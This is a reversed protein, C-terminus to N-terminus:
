TYYVYNNPYYFTLSDTVGQLAHSPTGYSAAAGWIYFMLLPEEGKYDGGPFMTEQVKPGGQVVHTARPGPRIVIERSCKNLEFYLIRQVIGKALSNMKQGKITAWYNHIIYM